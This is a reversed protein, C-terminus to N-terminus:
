SNELTAHHQLRSVAHMSPSKLGDWIVHAYNVCVGSKGHMSVTAVIRGIRRSFRKGKELSSPALHGGPNPREIVRDGEAFVSGKTM